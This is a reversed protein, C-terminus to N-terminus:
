VPTYNVVVGLDLLGSVKKVKTGYVNVQVLVPCEELATVSSLKENYDMNVVNLNKLGKLKDIKTIANHSGDITVLKCDKSFAPLEKVTNNSFNFYTMENLTSLATIDTISNSSINLEEIAVCSSIGSVDTLQNSELNLYELQTLENISGLESITNVGANLWTLGVCQAIPVLSTISNYSVDLKSLKTLTALDTLDLVANHALHLEQLDKLASLPAINRITNNNLNLYQLGTASSLAEVNSLLCDTLSLRKLQPMAAISQLMDRSVTANNVYLETLTTLSSLCSVDKPNKLSITLKEIFVMNAIDELSNADEPVTFDKIEWLDNTYLLKDSSVNLQKRVAAEVAADVFEMEKVVGGITYGYVSIPSVLGNDGITLAYVKNEGDVLPIPQSHPADNKSPYRGLTALVDLNAADLTVSIYQNYFGPAPSITPTAPRIADLQSKIAPDIIGDLLAAADLLKDQEVYVKSLAIYLDIGGGDRIANTLTYETKTYNGSKRYQEALELAVADDNGSHSYSLDYFWTAMSHYGKSESKRALNLLMDRTFDRDYVFLYWVLSLVVAITLVIPLLIRFVKKM